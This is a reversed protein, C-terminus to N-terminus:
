RSSSSGGQRRRPTSADADAFACDADEFGMISAVVRTDDPLRDYRVIGIRYSTPDTEPLSFVVMEAEGTIPDDYFASLKFGDDFARLGMVAGPVTDGRVTVTAADGDWDLGNTLFPLIPDRQECSGVQPM